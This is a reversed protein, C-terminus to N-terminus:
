CEPNHVASLVAHRTVQSRHEFDAQLSGLYNDLQQVLALLEDQLAGTVNQRRLLGSFRKLATFAQLPNGFIATLGGRDIWSAPKAFHM